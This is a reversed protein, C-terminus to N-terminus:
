TTAHPQRQPRPRLHRDPLRLQGGDRADPRARGSEVLGLMTFYSDWYYMEGFRGGPVVYPEPLPLLSSHTPHERPHRTLVDWLGDIHAVLTQEPDSVYGSEPPHESRFHAHSSVRGPRVGARRVARSLRRPDGRAAAAARLRRLDQQRRVRARDAGRRVTGPLPRGADASRGARVRAVRGPTANPRGATRTRSRTM